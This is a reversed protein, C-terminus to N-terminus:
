KSTKRLPKRPSSSPPRDIVEKATQVLAKAAPSLSRGEKAILFLERPVVPDVLKVAVLQPHEMTTILFSPLISIGLGHVTMSLATSMYSVEYTPVLTRGNAALAQDILRRISIEKTLGITPTDAIERWSIESRKAFPSDATCVVSIHDRLLVELSTLPTAKDITGISFEVESSLVKPVLQDSGVDQMIVKINPYSARYRALIKPMLAAAVAATVAFSVEGRAVRAIGRQSSSLYDVDRLIREAAPLAEKGASTLYLSRTTRDFLKVGLNTELQRILVSVASQTIRLQQAAKTMSGLRYSAVFAEIQRVNIM